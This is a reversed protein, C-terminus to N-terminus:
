AFYTRSAVFRNNPEGSPQFSESSFLWDFYQMARLLDPDETEPRPLAGDGDDFDAEVCTCCYDRIKKCLDFSQGHRQELDMTWEIAEIRRTFGQETMAM